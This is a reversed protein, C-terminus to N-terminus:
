KMVSLKMKAQGYTTQVEVTYLAPAYQHLDVEVTDSGNAPIVEILQGQLSYIRVQEIQEAKIYAKGNTPNPYLAVPHALNQDVDYFGASIPISKESYGCDNWARVTLTAMGPTVIILVCSTGAEDPEIIWNAGEVLWEYREANPVPEISYTYSGTMFSSAVFAQQMGNIHHITGVSPSITLHLFFTSDCGDPNVVSATYDGSTYYTQGHWEYSDCSTITEDSVSNQGINLELVLLSDCGHSSQLMKEYTGSQEYTTGYWTYPECTSINTATTTSHYISLNLNFISDCGTPNQVTESYNGSELYTQGRWNYSDCATINEESTFVSGINLNLILLSDCGHTTQLLHEYTGSHDYTTGYWTYPECTSLSLPTTTEHNITLHLIFTSDCGDTGTVVETINDSEYYTNGRWEYSDCAEITEESEYTAGVSLNLILLSDCGHTTQLHHEYIGSQEYTTGYWNYPECTAVELPTVVDHNITLHLIFTSDCGVPPHVTETIDDSEYYTNGRWEYYECAEITEESSYAQGITLNLILLSDCGHITQLHHQYTGSQQHTTGYWTYPECTSVTLPTTVDRYITLHLTVISDCGQMSTLNQTYNGSTTYTQGNWTYSNCTEHTFSTSYTDNVIVTHQVTTECNLGSNVTVSYTTTHTPSVTIDATHVGTNWTYTPNNTSNAIAHLTISEGKCITDHDAVITATPIAIVSVPVVNSYYTEGDYSVVYRVFYGDYSSPINNNTLPTFPGNESPAIEWIGTWGQGGTITPENLDLMDGECITPPAQLPGVEIPEAIHVTLEGATCEVLTTFSIDDLGFDNGALESNQNLITITAQTTNGSNWIEYFDEWVNTTLPARFVEGIQVGNISFQLRTIFQESYQSLTCVWTSFAYDTNPTVAITQSWVITNTNEAGNIIMFNGGGTHDVGTFGPHYDHANAGVYYTGEPNINTQYIYNSTFEVNGQEFDGNRVLNDSTAYGTCTYITTVTPSAIPNPITPDSLGTTPTWQYYEAGSAWLQVSEGAEITQDGCTIIECSVQAKAVHFSSLLIIILSKTFFSRFM